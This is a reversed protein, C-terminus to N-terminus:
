PRWGREELNVHAFSVFRFSMHFSSKQCFGHSWPPRATILKNMVMIRNRMTNAMTNPKSGGSPFTLRYSSDHGSKRPAM